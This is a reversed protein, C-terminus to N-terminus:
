LLWNKDKLLLGSPPDIPRRKPHNNKTESHNGTPQINWDWHIVASLPTSPIPLYVHYSQVSTVGTQAGHFSTMLSYRPQRGTVATIHFSVSSV